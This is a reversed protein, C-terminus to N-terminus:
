NIISVKPIPLDQEPVTMEAVVEIQPTSFFSMPVNIILKVRLEGDDLRWAQKRVRLNQNRDLTLYFELKKVKKTKTTM